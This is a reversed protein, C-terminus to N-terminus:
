LRFRFVRLTINAEVLCGCYGSSDRSRTLPTTTFLRREFRARRLRFILANCCVRRICTETGSRSAKLRVNKPCRAHLLEACISVCQRFGSASEGRISLEMSLSGTWRACNRYFTDHFRHKM